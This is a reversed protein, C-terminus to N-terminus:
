ASGKDPLAHLSRLLSFEAQLADVKGTAQMFEEHSLDRAAEMEQLAVHIKLLPEALPNAGARARLMEAGMDGQLKAIALNPRLCTKCVVFAPAFFGNPWLVDHESDEHECWCPPKPDEPFTLRHSTHPRTTETM